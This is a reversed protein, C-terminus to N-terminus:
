GGEWGGCWRTQVTHTYEAERLLADPLPMSDHQEGEDEEGAEADEEGSDEVGDGRKDPEEEEEATGTEDRRRRRRRRRRPARGVFRALGFDALKLTGDAGILINGPKVDRHLVGHSHCAAVGLLVQRIVGKICAPPLPERMMGGKGETTTKAGGGGGEGEGDDGDKVGAARVSLVAHLDGWPCIELVMTISSGLAFYDLLHVVHPEGALHQLTKLERLINDPLGKEPRRVLIRKLAVAAGSALHYGALVEGFAGGGLRRVAAYRAHKPGDPPM